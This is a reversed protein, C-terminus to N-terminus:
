KIVSSSREKKEEKIKPWTDREKEATGGGRRWGGIGWHGLDAIDRNAAPDTVVVNM